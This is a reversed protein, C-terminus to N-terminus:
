EQRLVTMPDIRSARLAPILTAIAAIFLLITAAVGFLVPNRPSVDFLLSGLFRTTILTGILGISIGAVTWRLAHTLILLAIQRPTAGVAMRM